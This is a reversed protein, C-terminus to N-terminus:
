SLKCFLLPPSFALIAVASVFRFVAVSEGVDLLAVEFCASSVLWAVSSLEYCVWVCEGLVEVLVGLRLSIQVIPFCYPPFDVTCLPCVSQGM